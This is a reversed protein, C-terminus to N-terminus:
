QYVLSIQLYM